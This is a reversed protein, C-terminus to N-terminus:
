KGLIEELRKDLAEMDLKEEPIKIKPAAKARPERTPFPFAPMPRRKEIEEEVILYRLFSNEDKLKKNIGSIKEPAANFTTWGFYANREKKIPYALRRKKPEEVYKVQGKEAEILGTLKGAYTLVEGEAISPALLYAIEYNKTEADM